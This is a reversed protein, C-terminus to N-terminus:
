GGGEAIEAAMKLRKALAVMSKHEQDAECPGSCAGELHCAGCPDPWKGLAEVVADWNNVRHVIMHARRNTDGEYSSVTAAIRGDSNM